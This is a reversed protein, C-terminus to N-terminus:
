RPRMGMIRGVAENHFRRQTAHRDCFRWDGRHDTLLHRAANICGRQQCQHRRKRLRRAKEDALTDALERDWRNM